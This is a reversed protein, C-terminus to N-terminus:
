AGEGSKTGKGGPDKDGGAGTKLGGQPPRFLLFGAAGAGMVILVPSLGLAASLALAVAFIALARYNKFVGKVLKIITDLILAGVAIRIGAFVHQVAPYEAFRRIFLAILAMLTVGPLIFALTALFGGLPGKRKHGVFTSVNVAIIGPTIQAITYYDMVEEMTVWGRGKILERELIPLMAYGGGFTSVGIKLFTLFLEVYDRM